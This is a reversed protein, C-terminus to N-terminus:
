KWTYMKLFVLNGEHSFFVFLFLFWFFVYKKRTTHKFLFWRCVVLFLLLFVFLVYFGYFGYFVKMIELYVNQSVGFEGRSLFFCVLVFVLFFCVKKSHHTQVFVLSLCGFFALSLCVFCLFWLFWLFGENNGPICKSFCWIGRTLSFFLCSCFGSFFMSKELPTNSCFGVVFLWFFCSFSLCFMSVMSVM